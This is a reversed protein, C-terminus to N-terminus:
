APTGEFEFSVTEDLVTYDVAGTLLAAAAPRPIDWTEAVLKVAPDADTRHYERAWAIIGPAYVMGSSQLNYRTTM